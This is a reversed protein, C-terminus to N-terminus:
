KKPVLNYLIMRKGDKDQLSSVSVTMDKKKERSTSPVITVGGISSGTGTKHVVRLIEKKSSSLPIKLQTSSSPSSSPSSPVTTLITTSPHKIPEKGEVKEKEGGDHATCDFCVGADQNSFYNWAEDLTPEYKKLYKNVQNHLEWTWAFIGIDIENRFYKGYYSEFPHKEIFRQWHGQCTKCKFDDCNEQIEKEFKKNAKMNNKLAARAARRHFLFWYGTGLVEPRTFVSVDM